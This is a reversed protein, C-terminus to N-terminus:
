YIGVSNWANIVVNYADDGYMEKASQALVNKADKFTSTPTLYYCLARYYIDETKSPGLIKVTNYFAKNPIGSNYHVGGYDGAETNPLNIYQSMHEPQNYLSPQSLSRLADGYIGPTYSDEGILYDGPDLFYAFVDSMSENLAGSQYEYALQAEYDTVGHTYEHAAIDLSKALPGFRKGDGDGYVLNGESWFANNYNTGYHVVSNVSSGKNDFSQRHHHYRFYNYVKILNDHASVGSKQYESNFYKDRDYMLSMSATTNGADFVRFITPSKSVDMLYNVYNANYLPISRSYNFLDIGVGSVAGTKILNKLIVKGTSADVFVDWNGPSPSIYNITFHYFEKNSKVILEKSTVVDKNLNSVESKNLGIEKFALNIAKDESIKIDSKVNNTNPNLDGSIFNVEGKPSVHIIIKSNYVKKNNKKLELTYHTFGLNDKEVNTVNYQNYIKKLDKKNPLNNLLKKIDQKNQVKVVNNMQKDNITDAKATLPIVSTTLSLAVLSASIFKKM